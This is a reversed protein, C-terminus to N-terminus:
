AAGSGSFGHYVNIQRSKQIIAVALRRFATLKDHYVGYFVFYLKCAIKAKKTVAVALVTSCLLAGVGVVSGCRCCQWVQWVPVCVVCYRRFRVVRHVALM